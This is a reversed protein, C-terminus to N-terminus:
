VVSPPARPSYVRLTRSSSGSQLPVFLAAFTRAVPLALPASRLADGASATALCQQCDAHSPLIPQRAKEPRASVQAAMDAQVHSLAHMLADQQLFLLFFCLLWAIAPRKSLRM